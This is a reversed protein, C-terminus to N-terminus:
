STWVRNQMKREIEEEFTEQVETRVEVAQLKWQKMTRLCSLIYNIQSEIMFVMSNHGLGTNPGVLLCSAETVRCVRPFRYIPSMFALGVFSRILRMSGGM